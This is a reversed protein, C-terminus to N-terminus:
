KNTEDAPSKKVPKRGIFLRVPDRARRDASTKLVKRTRSFPNSESLNAMELTSQNKLILYSHLGFLGGLSFILAASVMM